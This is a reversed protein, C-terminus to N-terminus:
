KKYTIYVIGNINKRYGKTVWLFMGFSVLVVLRSETLFLHKTTFIITCPLEGHFVYPMLNILYYATSVVNFWFHTLVNTQFLIGRATELDRGKRETVGNQTPTVVCYSQHIIEHKTIFTKLYGSFYKKIM